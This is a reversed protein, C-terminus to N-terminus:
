RCGQVREEYIPVIVLCETVYAAKAGCPPISGGSWGPKCKLSDDIGPQTYQRTELGDCNYDYEPQFGADPRPVTFFGQQGAYVDPNNDDCDGSLKASYFDLPGCLCLSSNGYTDGDSDQFYNECGVAGPQNESGDCDDDTGNGCIEVNNGGATCGAVGSQCVVVDDECKDTDSGDCAAGLPQNKPGWVFGEDTAGDCDDDAFNCSEVQASGSEQCFTGTGAASCKTTGTKCLDSDNGDCPAGLQPYGEDTTGDCDNDIADCLEPAGSWAAAQGDNCDDGVLATFQNAPACTCSPQAALGHTDQDADKYYTQCGESLDTASCMSGAGPCLASKCGCGPLQGNYAGSCTGDAACAAGTICPDNATCTAGVDIQKQCVGGSCVGKACQSDLQSCNKLDGACGDPSCRDNTTCADGDDCPGPVFTETCMPLEGKPDVDACCRVYATSGRPSCQAVVAGLGASGGAQTMASNIGCATSTWVRQADLSCGTQGAENGTLETFTCLRAGAAECFSQAQAYTKLGSCTPVESAGCVTPSGVGTSWGLKACSVASTRTPQCLQQECPSVGPAGCADPDVEVICGSATNCTDTTCADDDDCTRPAGGGCTATTAAGPTAVCTEGVTCANGDDCPGAKLTHKCGVKADCTDLTCPEGDDCALGGLGTCSGGVCVDGVTCADGDDCFADEPSFTCLGGDCNAITCPNGDDCDAPTTCDCAGGDDCVGGDCVGSGCASSTGCTTGDDDDHSCDGTAANCADKTCPNSDDCTNAKGKCVGAACTDVSTCPDDDNCPAGTVPMAVCGVGPQCSLPMCPDDGPPCAASPAQCQGDACVGFEAGCSVDEPVCEVLGVVPEYTCVGSSPDCADTTCPNTDDCSASAGGVCAGGVCQDGITCPTGDDCPLGDDPIHLCGKLSDCQDRTCPNDDLCATLDFPDCGVGADVETDADIETDADADPAADAEVDLGGDADFGDGPPLENSVDGAADGDPGPVTDESGDAGVDLGVEGGVDGVADADADAGGVMPAKREVSICGGWSWALAAVSAVLLGARHSSLEM